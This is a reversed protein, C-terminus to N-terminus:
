SLINKFVRTYMAEAITNWEYRAKVLSHANAIVQKTNPNQLIDEVASAVQEPSDKDVAWGTTEKDPNRKADFLFDAIGGEQTAIVPLGAAMAEVFSNGMGESRSPRIFIDAEHLYRPLDKHNVHGVFEVRDGVGLERALRRLTHEEPGQGIIQFHVGPLLPLARIVIDNANKIVLRSTTVLVTGSHAIPYGEFRAGDVGNPIVEIDGAYGMQRAWGALYNSIAQVIRANKFGRTLLFRFPLIHVRGFMHRFPDGEQLTLAYPVNMGWLRAIMIPFLMYSMMAWAGSFQERRHLRVACHAAFPIFLMKSFYSAGSGVRHVRVNGIVEEALDHVNFRMTILQFEIDPIRDTIEKIAIEAGGVHPFYALSFILIKKM